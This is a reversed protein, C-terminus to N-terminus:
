KLINKVPKSKNSVLLRQNERVILAAFNRVVNDSRFTAISGTHTEILTAISFRLILCILNNKLNFTALDMPGDTM